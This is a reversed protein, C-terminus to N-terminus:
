YQQAASELSQGYTRAGDALSKMQTAINEAATLCAPGTALQAVGSAANHLPEDARLDSLENGVHEFQAGTSRLVSPEVKLVPGGPTTM